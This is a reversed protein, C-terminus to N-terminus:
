SRETVVEDDDAIVTVGDDAIVAVDPGLLYPVPRITASEISSVDIGPNDGWAVTTVTGNEQKEWRTIFNKKRVSDSVMGSRGGAQMALQFTKLKEGQRRATGNATDGHGRLKPVRWRLGGTAVAPETPSVATTSNGIKCVVALNDAKEADLVLTDSGQGSVYALHTNILTEIHQENIYYWFFKVQNSVDVDGLSAKLKFTKLSSEGSVPNWVQLAMSKWTLGYVTDAKFNATLTDSWKLMHPLESEPEAYVLSLDIRVPAQPMVDKKVLLRGGSLLVYDASSDDTTNTIQTGNAYWYAEFTPVIKEGNDPNVLALDPVLTLPAALTSATGKRTPEWTEANQYYWQTLDGGQKKVDFIIGKPQIPHEVPVADMSLIDIM